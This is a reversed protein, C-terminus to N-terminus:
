EALDVEVVRAATHTPIVEGSVESAIEDIDPAQDFVGIVASGSGTLQAIRAGRARLTGIIEMIEPHREAVEGEFDNGALAELGPWGSFSSEDLAIPRRPDAVGPPTLWQYADATSITFPPMVIVVPRSPPTPLALMREGRGWALACPTELTLFPVDAGIMGAIGVLGDRGVPSPALADLCRLVAGADASGGGLGAGVPITKQLHIEFGDPWGTALHYAVAARMALNREAPGLDVEGADILRRDGGVRVTVIDGADIRLFITELQHYGSEERALIRLSINVKAQACVRATTGTM